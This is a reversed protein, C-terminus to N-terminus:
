VGAVEFMLIAAIFAGESQSNGYRGAPLLVFILQHKNQKKEEMRTQPTKSILHLTTILIKKM